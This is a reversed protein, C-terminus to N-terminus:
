KGFFGALVLRLGKVMLVVAALMIILSLVWWWWEGSQWGRAGKWFFLAPGFFIFPFAWAMLNVGRMLKDKDTSM